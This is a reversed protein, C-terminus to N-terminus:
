RAEDLGYSRLTTSGGAFYRETIPLHETGGFPQNWGLRVSRALVGPGMPSFFSTQNFLSTFNVESALLRSAVQFTTSNFSGTTPDISDDRRDQVLSAGIRSVQIVGCEQLVEEVPDVVADGNQECNTRPNIRIDRLDVTQYSATLLFNRQLAFRKLTQISFDFRNAEYSPRETHEMFLSAFGDLNRNFLRPERYTSQFRQERRSGRLRVSIARDLGFLNNHSIELTGRVKEFEQYGVGYTVLIPKADEVQILLNRITPLDQQLTVIEVRAFLGTAYLRQQGELIAEPNYPTNAYLNAYRHVIKDETRVNGAVLINGIQYSGGEVISFRVSMGHNTEVRNTDTEIRVDAYGRGYYLGLLRNRAENLASLSYTDSEKFPLAGRLEQESVDYNGVFSIFDIPLQTGERIQILIDVSHNNETWSGEIETGEFGASRYMTFISREDEDLIEPSFVGKDFLGATRIQLRKRIESEDFHQNGEIDISRIRHREGPEITYNIQIATVEPTTPDLPAEIMESQVTAEFYGQLKLYEELEVRGEEVLDSDVTGEEFIPILERLRNKSFNFGRTEVLTFQGPQITVNLDVSKTGSDYKQDATVRTNLFGLELFKGRVETISTDIRAATFDDGTDLNFADLIEKATFTQEGGTFQIKGVKAQPGSVAKLTILALRTTEDLDVDPIITAEFYGQAKLLELSEAVIRGLVSRSYKEGVPLRLYGSLPRELLNAPELRITSFFFHPRVHFVLRTGGDAASADVEIYSYRGTDYLAQISARINEPTISDGIRIPVVKLDSDSPAGELSIVTIRTGYYQQEAQALWPLLLVFILCRVRM